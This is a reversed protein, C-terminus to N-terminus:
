ERQSTIAQMNHTSKYCHPLRCTKHLHQTYQIKCTRQQIKFSKKM